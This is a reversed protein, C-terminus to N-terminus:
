MQLGSSLRFMIDSEEDRGSTCDADAAAWAEAGTHRSVNRRANLRMQRWASAGEWCLLAAVAASLLALVAGFGGGRAAAVEGGRVTAAEGGRTAPSPWLLTSPVGIGAHVHVHMHVRVRQLWMCTGMGMGMDMCACACTCACTCTCACACAWAWACACSGSCRPCPCARRGAYVLPTRLTGYTYGITANHVRTCLHPVHPTICQTSLVWEVAPQPSHVASHVASHACHVEKGEQQAWVGFSADFAYGSVNLEGGRSRLLPLIEPLRKGKVYEYVDQELLDLLLFRGSASAEAVTVRAHKMRLFDAVGAAFATAAMGIPPPLPPSVFLELRLAYVKSSPKNAPPPTRILDTKPSTLPSNAWRVRFDCGATCRLGGLEVPLQQGEGLESWHESGAHRALVVFLSGTTQALLPEDACGPRATHNFAVLVSTSTTPYVLPPAICNM